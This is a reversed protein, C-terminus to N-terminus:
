RIKWEGSKNHDPNQWWYAYGVEEAYLWGWLVAETDDHVTEMYTVWLNFHEPDLTDIDTQRQRALHNRWTILESVTAEPNKPPGVPSIHNPCGPYYCNDTPKM